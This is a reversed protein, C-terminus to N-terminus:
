GWMKWCDYLNYNVIDNIVDKINDINFNEIDVYDILDDDVYVNIKNNEIDIEIKFKNNLM